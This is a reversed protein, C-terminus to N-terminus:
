TSPPGRDRCNYGCRSPTDVDGLPLSGAARLVFLWTLLHKLANAYLTETGGQVQIVLTLSKDSRIIGTSAKAQLAKKMIKANRAKELKRQAVEREKQQLERTQTRHVRTTSRAKSM